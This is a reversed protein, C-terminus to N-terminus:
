TFEIYGDPLDYKTEAIEPLERKDTCYRYFGKFQADEKLEPCYTLLKQVLQDDFSKFHNVANYAAVKDGVKFLSSMYIISTTDNKFIDNANEAVIKASAYDKHKYLFEIVFQWYQFNDPAHDLAKMFNNFAEKQEGVHYHALALNILILMQDGAIKLAAQYNDIAEYHNHHRVLCIGKLVMAYWNNKDEMLYKSAYFFALNYNEVALYCEALDLFLHHKTSNAEQDVLRNYVTIAKDYRAGEKLCQAHMFLAEINSENITNAMDFAHAANLKQNHFFYANGLNVWAQENYADDNLLENFYKICIPYDNANNYTNWVAELAEANRPNSRLVTKYLLLAKKYHMQDTLINALALDIMNADEISRCYELRLTELLEKALVSQSLAHWAKAKIIELQIDCTTANEILDITSQYDENYFLIQSKKILLAISNPFQSLGVEISHMAELHKGSTTLATVKDIIVTEQNKSVAGKQSM